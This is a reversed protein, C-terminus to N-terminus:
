NAAISFTVQDLYDGALLGTQDAQYTVTVDRTRSVVGTANIVTAGNQLNLAQGAYNMSYAFNANGSTHKLKGANQSQVTIKFGNAANSLESVVAVKLDQKNQTLDLNQAISEAAISIDIKQPINGKLNLVAQTGAFSTLTTFVLGLTFLSKKM